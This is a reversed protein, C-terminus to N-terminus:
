VINWGAVPQLVCSVLNLLQALIGLTLIAFFFEGRKFQCPLVLLIELLSTHCHGSMDEM